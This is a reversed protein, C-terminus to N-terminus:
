ELRFPTATLGCIRANELVSLFELMQGGKASTGTHCEDILVFPIERFAEAYRVVSGITALTIRGIERRGFAASFIAAHFGYSALKAANQELIEKSPQLVVCPGPLRAVINAIVLSKGAGTPQVIIGHRGKLAEDTLYAVGADVAAQQYTRLIYTMM